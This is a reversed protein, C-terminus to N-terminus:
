PTWKALSTRPAPPKNGRAPRGYGDYTTSWRMSRVDEDFELRKGKTGGSPLGDVPLSPESKSSVMERLERDFYARSSQINKQGCSKLADAKEVFELLTAAPALALVRSVLHHNSM